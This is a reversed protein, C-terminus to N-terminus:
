TLSNLLDTVEQDTIETLVDQKGDLATKINGTTTNYNTATTATDANGTLPGIFATATIQAPFTAHKSANYSYLHGTSAITSPTTWGVGGYGFISYICLGGYTDTDTAARAEFLFQIKKYTAYQSAGMSVSKNFVNFGSWGGVQMQGINTWVDTTEAQKVGSMVMYCSNSGNTSLYIVFKEFVNYIGFSGCNIIVRVKYNAYNTGTTAKNSNDWKGIRIEYGSKCSFIGSKTDNSAGYDTWTTGGDRTYEIIIGSPNGFAFRNAGLESVLASDLPGFTGVRNQGGWSLYAEYPYQFSGAKSLLQGVSSGDFALSTRAVKSSDSSDTVVLKDGNAIAVDSTQLTGGNQMNGHTHSKAAFTDKIKAWLGTIVSSLKRVTVSNTTAPAAM